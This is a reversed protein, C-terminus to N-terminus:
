KMSRILKEASRALKQVSEGTLKKRLSLFRSRINSRVSRSERNKTDRKLLKGLKRSSDYLPLSVTFSTKRSRFDPAIQQLRSHNQVM